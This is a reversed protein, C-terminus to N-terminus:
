AKRDNAAGPISLGRCAALRAGRDSSRVSDRPCDSGLLKEMAFKIIKGFPASMESRSAEVTYALIALIPPFFQHELDIRCALGPLVGMAPRSKRRFEAFYVRYCSSTIFRTDAGVAATVKDDVADRSPAM